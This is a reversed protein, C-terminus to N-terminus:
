NQVARVPNDTKMGVPAPRRWFQGGSGASFSQLAALYNHTSQIVCAAVFHDPSTGQEARCEQIAAAVERAQAHDLEFRQVDVLKKDIASCMYAGSCHLRSRRCLVPSGDNSLLAVSVKSDATGTGGSWSDQDKEIENAPKM